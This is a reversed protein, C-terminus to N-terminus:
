QQVEKKSKSNVHTASGWTVHAEQWREVQECYLRSVNLPQHAALAVSGNKTNM